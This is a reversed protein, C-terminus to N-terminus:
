ISFSNAIGKGTLGGESTPFLLYSMKVPGVRNKLSKDHNRSIVDDEIEALKKRFKKFAKLPQEDLEFENLFINTCEVTLCADDVVMSALQSLQAHRMLLKDKQDNSEQGNCDVVGGFSVINSQKKFTLHRQRSSYTGDVRQIPYLAIEDDELTCTLIYATSQFITKPFISFKKNHILKVMQTEMSSLSTLKPEENMDKHDAVLEKHRQHGVAGNFRTIFDILSNKRSVYKNFFSRSSEARQSSLMGANFHM